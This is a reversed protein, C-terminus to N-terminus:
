QLFEKVDVCFQAIVSSLEMMFTTPFLDLKAHHRSLAISGILCLGAQDRPMRIVAVYEQHRFIILVVLDLPQSGVGEWRCM